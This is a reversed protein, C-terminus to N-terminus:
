PKADDASADLVSAGNPQTAGSLPSHGPVAIGTSDQTRLAAAASGGAILRAVSADNSPRVDRQLRLAEGDAPQQGSIAGRAASPVLAPSAHEGNVATDGLEPDPTVAIRLWTAGAPSLTGWLSIRQGESM